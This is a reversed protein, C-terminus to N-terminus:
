RDTRYDGADGQEQSIPFIGLAGRMPIFSLPKPDKLVFGYPGEFWPSNSARVCDVIEVSGVIGGRPLDSPVQLGYKCELVADGGEDYRMGAHIAVRGRFNTAWTRNEIDKGAYLIAWAWPQRISLARDLMRQMTEEVM